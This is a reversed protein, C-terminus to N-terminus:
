ARSARAATDGVPVGLLRALWEPHVFLLRRIPTVVIILLFGISLLCWVAPWENLNNTLLRALIPGM